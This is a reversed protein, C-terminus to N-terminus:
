RLPHRRPPFEHRAHDAIRNLLYTDGGAGIVGLVFASHTNVGFGYLTHAVFFPFVQPVVGFRV